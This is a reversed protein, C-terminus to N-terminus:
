PTLDEPFSITLEPKGHSAKHKKEYWDWVDVLRSADSFIATETWATGVEGNGTACKMLAIIKM